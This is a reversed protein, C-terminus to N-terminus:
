NSVEVGGMFAYGTILLRKGADPAPATKQTFGGAVPVGDMVVTWDPPVKISVGGCVTFVNLVAEKMMSCARLDLDCGGLL